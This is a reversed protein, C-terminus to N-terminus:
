RLSCGYYFCLVCATPPHMCSTPTSARSLSFCLGEKIAPSPDLFLIRSFGKRRGRERHSKWPGAQQQLHCCTEETCLNNWVQAISPNEPPFPAQTAVCLKHKPTAGVGADDWTGVPPHSHTIWDRGSSPVMRSCSDASRSHLSLVRPMCKDGVWSSSGHAGRPSQPQAAARCQSFIESLM